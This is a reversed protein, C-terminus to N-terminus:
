GFKVQTKFWWLAANKLIVNFGVYKFNRFILSHMLVTHLNHNIIRPWTDAHGSPCHSRFDGIKSAWGCWWVWCEVLGGGGDDGLDDDDGGDDDVLDDVGGDDDGVGVCSVCQRLFSQWRWWIFWRAELGNRPGFLWARTCFKGPPNMGADMSFIDCLGQQKPRLLM